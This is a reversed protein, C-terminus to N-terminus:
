RVMSPALLPASVSERAVQLAAWASEGLAPLARVAGATANSTAVVSVMGKTITGAACDLMVVGFGIVRSADEISDVIPVFGTTLTVPLGAPGIADVPDGIQVIGRGSGCSLTGAVATSPPVTADPGMTNWFTRSLGFSTVGQPVEGSAGGVAVARRAAAIATGRATIGHHRPSYGAAPDGGPMASGRGFLFPLPPGGSSTGAEDDLGEANRTRRLRVLFADAVPSTAPPSPLFDRRCYGAAEAPAPNSLDEDCANAGFTGAVMDGHRANDSINLELQPRYVPPAGARLTQLANGPGVGGELELIPGAGLNLSDGALEFRDNFSREVLDRARARRALDRDAPPVAPDDRWRLGELAATDAATQMAVQALVALGLDVSLAAVAMLAFMLLAVWVTVFGRRDRAASAGRRVREWWGFPM